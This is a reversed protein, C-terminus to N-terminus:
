HRKKLFKNIYSKGTNWYEWVVSERLILLVIGYVAFFFIGGALLSLFVPISSRRVALSALAALGIATIIKWIQIGKFLKGLDKRLVCMQYILVIFEASVTGIAAGSAGLRPILVANVILNVIAGAIESYLVYKEKGMPILIQIGTINSLGILFLTPMIIEMPLIAREFLKGSVLYITSQAFIIFFVALSGGAIIEFAAAKKALTWFEKKNGKEWHYSVRPLLVTGLSTVVSVLINKIKVAADYCGNEDAGKIFGLMVSDMNTYITTAISMGFFVLIPKMHQRFHYNGTPRVSIMKHLNIFNMANSGVLALVTLFGYVVYDDSNHVFVFICVFAIFKFIISRVTIYTYQELGKYLWEVGLTNFFILVSMVLFLTKEQRLRANCFVAVFFAAYSLFCTVMNIILIEQVTRSLKERDDRVKACVRIGYTPIGLQAFMTFYTIVANAFSVMGMGYPKLIRSAYPYTLLPFLINSGTLIVNMIFNYTVSRNKDTNRVDSEENM